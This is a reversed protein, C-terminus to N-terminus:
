LLFATKLCERYEPIWLSLDSTETLQPFTTLIYTIAVYILFIAFYEGTIYQMKNKRYENIILNTPVQFFMHYIHFRKKPITRKM